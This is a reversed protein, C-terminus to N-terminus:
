LYKLIEGVDILYKEEVVDYVWVLEIIFYDIDIDKEYNIWIVIVINLKNKYKFLYVFNNMMEIDKRNFSVFLFGIGFNLVLWYFNIVRVKLLEIMFYYKEM